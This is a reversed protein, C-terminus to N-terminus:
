AMETAASERLERKARKGFILVIPSAIFISSYTGVVVGILLMYAFDHIVLGGFIHLALLALITTGSTLLTRSLTANVCLDILEMLSKNPHQRIGERIRDFVVITDNISYGAV